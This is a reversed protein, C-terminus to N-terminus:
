GATPWPTSTTGSWATAATVAPRSASSATSTRRHGSSSRRAYSPESTAASTPLTDIRVGDHLVVKVFADEALRRLVDVPVPGGGVIHCAEGGHAHGRRWAGLDCVLVLDTSSRKNAGTGALMAVLADAAHAGRPEPVAAARRIRDCEDDLRNMLAVGVDPPLAGALRVM